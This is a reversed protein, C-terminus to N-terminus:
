NEPTVVNAKVTLVTTTPTTNAVISVKQNQLGKKGTSNFLVEVVGNEGPNIPKKPFSPVTCGCGASATTIVLPAGGNNKFKFGISIKEGQIVKGFDYEVFDFSMEPLTSNNNAGDASAPNNVVSSSDNSNCAIILAFVIITLFMILNHNKM